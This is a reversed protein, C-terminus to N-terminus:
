KGYYHKKVFAGIRYSSLVYQIPRLSILKASLPNEPIREQWIVGRQQLSFEWIGRNKHYSNPLLTVKKGLVTGLISSHLRNTVISKAEAHLMVWSTFDNAVSAPDLYHPMMPVIGQPLEKDARIFYAIYKGDPVPQLIDSAQLNLATDNDLLLEIDAPLYKKLIAYSIKERCCVVVETCIRTQLPEVLNRLLYGEDAVFTSPGVILPGTHSALVKHLEHIPNGSWWPVFGGGGHIYIVCDPAISLEMFQEHSISEFDLKCFTALKEAGKYILYDGSNGGPRVFIFKRNRFREFTQLLLPSAIWADTM